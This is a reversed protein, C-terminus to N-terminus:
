RQELGRLPELINCPEESIATTIHTFLFKKPSSISSFTMSIVVPQLRRPLGMAISTLGFGDLFWVSTQRKAPVGCVLIGRAVPQTTAPGSEKASPCVRRSDKM